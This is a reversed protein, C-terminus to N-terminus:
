QHALKREHARVPGTRPASQRRKGSEANRVRRSPDLGACVEPLGHDSLLGSNVSTGHAEECNTDLVDSADFAYAPVFTISSFQPLRKELTVIMPKNANTMEAGANAQEIAEHRSLPM